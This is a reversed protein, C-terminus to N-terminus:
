TAKMSSQPISTFSLRCHSPLTPDGLASFHIYTVTLPRDPNHKAGSLDGPRFLFCDGSRVPYIKSNLTVEGEGDWVYWFDYDTFPM